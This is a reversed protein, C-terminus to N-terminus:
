THDANRELHGEPVRIGQWSSPIPFILLPARNGGHSGEARGSLGGGRACAAGAEGRPASCAHGDRPFQLRDPQAQRGPVAHGDTRRVRGTSVSARGDPPVPQHAAVVKVTVTKADKPADPDVDLVSVSWVLLGSEKDVAQVPRERTSKDFDRVPEVESVLYAGHPFPDGHNIKFRGSHAM